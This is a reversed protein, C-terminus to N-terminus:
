PGENFDVEVKRERLESVLSRCNPVELSTTTGFYSGHKLEPHILDANSSAPGWTKGELRPVPCFECKRICGRTGFMISSDWQPVLSYDPRYAEEELVLGNHVETVDALGAHEPM